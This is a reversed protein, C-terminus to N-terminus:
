TQMDIFMYAEDDWILALRWGFGWSDVRFWLFMMSIGMKWEEGMGILVFDVRFLFFMKWIDSKGAMEVERDHQLGLLNYNSCRRKAAWMSM